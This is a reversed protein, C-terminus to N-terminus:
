DFKKYAQRIAKEAKEDEKLIEDVDSKIGEALGNQEKSKKGILGKLSNTLKRILSKPQPQNEFSAPIEPNPM